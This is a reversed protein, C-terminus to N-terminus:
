KNHPFTIIIKCAVVGVDFCPPLKFDSFYAFL